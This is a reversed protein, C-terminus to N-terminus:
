SLREIKQNLMAEYKKSVMQKEVQLAEQFKLTGMDTHYRSLLLPQNLFHFDEHQLVRLWMEYDQTFKLKEDFLGVKDFLEMRIIVTCGNIHCKNKLYRYFEKKDVIIKGLNKRIIKSQDNIVHYNTYSIKAQHKQMFDMQIQTKNNMFRDDSSLWSFYDGTAVKIGANLASATGGNPKEVYKIRNLFPKIKETYKTSGDNVVIVEKNVYTQNLASKIAQQVYQCNYFPIIISVKPFEM